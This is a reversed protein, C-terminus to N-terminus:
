GAPMRATARWKYSWGSPTLGRITGRPSGAKAASCLRPHNLATPLRPLSPSPRSSSSAPFPYTSAHPLVPSIYRSCGNISCLAVLLGSRFTRIIVFGGMLRLSGNSKWRLSPLYLRTSLAVNRISPFSASPKFPQFIVCALSDTIGSLTRM